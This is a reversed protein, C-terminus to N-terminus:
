KKKRKPTVNAEQQTQIQMRNAVEEGVATWYSSPIYRSAVHTVSRDVEAYVDVHVTSEAYEHALKELTKMFVCFLRLNM